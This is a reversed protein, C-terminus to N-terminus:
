SLCPVITKSFIFTDKLANKETNQVFSYGKSIRYPINKFIRAIICM